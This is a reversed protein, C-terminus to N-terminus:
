SRHLISFQAVPVACCQVSTALTMAKKQSCCLLWPLEVMHITRDKKVGKIALRLM